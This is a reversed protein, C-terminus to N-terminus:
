CGMDASQINGRHEGRHVRSYRSKKGPHNKSLPQRASLPKANDCCQNCNSQNGGSCTVLTAASARSGDAPIKPVKESVKCSLLAMDFITRVPHAGDRQKGDSFVTDIAFAGNNRGVGRGSVREYTWPAAMQICYMVANPARTSFPRTFFPSITSIVAALLLKPSAAM